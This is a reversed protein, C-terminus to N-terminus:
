KFNKGKGSTKDFNPYPKGQGRVWGSTDNDYKEGHKDEPFQPAQGGQSQDKTM